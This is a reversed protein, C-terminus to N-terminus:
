RADSPTPRRSRLRRPTRTRWGSRWTSVHRRDVPQPGGDRVDGCDVVMGVQEGSGVCRVAEGVHQGLAAVGGLDAGHAIVGGVMPREALEARREPDLLGLLRERGGAATVEGSVDPAQQVLAPELRHEDVVPEADGPHDREALM